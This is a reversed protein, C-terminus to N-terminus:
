APTHILIPFLHEFRCLPRDACSLTSTNLRGAASGSVPRVRSQCFLWTLSESVTEPKALTVNLGTTRRASVPPTRAQEWPSESTPRLGLLRMASAPVQADGIVM